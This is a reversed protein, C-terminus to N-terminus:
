VRLRALDMVTLSEGAETFAERGRRDRIAPMKIEGAFQSVNVDHRRLLFERDHRRVLELFRTQGRRRNGRTREQEPRAFVEHRHAALSTVTADESRRGASCLM